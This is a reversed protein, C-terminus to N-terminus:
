TPTVTGFSYPIAPMLSRGPSSGPSASGTPLKACCSWAATPRSIARTWRPQSRSAPSLHCALTADTMIPSPGPNCARNPKSVWFWVHNWGSPGRGDGRNVGRRSYNPNATEINGANDDIFLTRAPELARRKLLLEFIEPDPKVMKVDASVVIDDFGRLFPFMALAVDFKERSFNTIAYNPVGAARLQTLVGVTGPIEGAIMEGWRRDFAWLADAHHPHRAALEALGTAFPEGRDFEINRILLGTEAYFGHMAADDAFLKRYLREPYWGILVNGIDFIVNDITRASM